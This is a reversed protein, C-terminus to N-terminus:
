FLSLVAQACTYSIPTAGLRDSYLGERKDNMRELVLIFIYLLILLILLRVTPLITLGTRSLDGTPGGPGRWRAVM